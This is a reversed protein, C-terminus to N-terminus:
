PGAGGDLTYGGGRVTRILPPDGLKRRLTAVHVNVTNTFMDVHGDWCRDILEGRSVVVGVSETLVELVAFEKPTLDILIDNRRAVRAARDIELDAVHEVTPRLWRGRRCLAQVRLALESLEFPKTVYDDGGAEFGAVRESLGGRASLFLVPISSGEVRWEHVFDLADGDPVLRDFILCDYKYIRLADEVERLTGAEDVAFGVRQLRKVILARLQVDDELLLVRM